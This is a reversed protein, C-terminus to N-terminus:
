SRKGSGSSLEGCSDLWKEPWPNSMAANYLELVHEKLGEDTKGPAYSEWLHLLIQKEKQM